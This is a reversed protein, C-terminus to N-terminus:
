VDIVGFEKWTGPSGATTCVWGVKGGASPEKNFIIDGREWTGASPAALNFTMPYRPGFYNQTSWGSTANLAQWRNAAVAKLTIRAGVTRSIINAAPAPSSSYGEIFDSGQLVILILGPNNVLFSFEAGIVDQALPLTFNSSSTAAITTGILHKALTQTAQNNVLFGNDYKITVDEIVGTVLTPQINSNTWVNGSPNIIEIDKFPTAGNNRLYYPSFTNPVTRNDQVDVDKIIIDGLSTVVQSVERNILVGNRFLVSVASLIPNSGPNVIKVNEIKLQPAYQDWLQIFIGSCQPNIITSDSLRVIGGMKSTAALGGNSALFGGNQGDYFSTWDSINVSVPGDTLPPVVSIGGGANNSTYVGIININRIQYGALPNPEIDIGFQPPFRNSNKYEGGMVLCNIANSISLGNRSANDAICNYLAINTNIENSAGSVVFCDGGPDKCVLDYVRVNSSGLIRVCHRYESNILNGNIVEQLPYESKRMQITAGNGFITVNDKVLINLLCDSWIYAGSKALLTAKASFTLTTDDLVNLPAVIYTGDPIYINGAVNLAAQIAATDDTVGNGVAGFDKVSVTERLKAQVTTPVAGTGAPAYQVVSANTAQALNSPVVLTNNIYLEDARVKDAFVTDANLISNSDMDLDSEMNNPGTGDRSLTNEFATEIADFNDNLADISGYRSGIANLTLKAM